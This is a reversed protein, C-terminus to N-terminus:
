DGSEIGKGALKFMFNAMHRIHEAIFTLYQYIGLLAHGMREFPDGPHVGIPPHEVLERRSKKRHCNTCMGWVIKPDYFSRFVHEREFCEPDTEGCICAVNPVGLRKHGAWKAKLRLRQIELEDM